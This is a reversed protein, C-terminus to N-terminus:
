FNPSYSMHGPKHFIQKVDVKCVQRHSSPGFSPGKARHRPLHESDQRQTLIVIAILIITIIVTSTITVVSTITSSHSPKFMYLGM